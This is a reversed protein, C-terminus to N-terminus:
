RTLWTLGSGPGKMSIKFVHPQHKDGLQGLFSCVKFFLTDVSTRSNFCQRLVLLALSNKNWKAYELCREICKKNSLPTVYELM